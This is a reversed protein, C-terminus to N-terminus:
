KGKQNYRKVKRQIFGLRSLCSRISCAASGYAGVEKAFLHVKWIDPRQTLICIAELFQLQQDIDVKM